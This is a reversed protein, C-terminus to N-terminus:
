KMKGDEEGTNRRGFAGAAGSRRTKEAWEVADRRGTKVDVAFWIVLSAALCMAFLFPFGKWNNGTDDIIAQIVNPGIMSSARNSLGFLGFFMNDFGPPTLEAMM